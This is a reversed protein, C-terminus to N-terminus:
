HKRKSRVAARLTSTADQLKGPSAAYATQLENALAVVVAIAPDAASQGVVSPTAEELMNTSAADIIPADPQTM